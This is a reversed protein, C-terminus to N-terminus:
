QGALTDRLTRLYKFADEVSPEIFTDEGWDNFTLIGMLRHTDLFKRSAKVTSKLFGTSKPVLGYGEPRDTLHSDDYGPYAFPILEIGAKKTTTQWRSYESYADEITYHHNRSIPPLPDQSSSIADFLRLRDLDIPDGHSVQDGILYVDYGM